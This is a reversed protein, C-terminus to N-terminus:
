FPPEKGEEDFLPIGEARDVIFDSDDKFVIINKERGHNASSHFSAITAPIFRYDGCEM